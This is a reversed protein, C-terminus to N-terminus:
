HRAQQWHCAPIVCASRQHSLTEQRPMAHTACLPVDGPVGKINTSWSCHGTCLLSICHLVGRTSCCHSHGVLAQTIHLFDVEFCHQGEHPACRCAPVWSTALVHCACLELHRVAPAWCQACLSPASCVCPKRAHDPSAGSLCVTATRRAPSPNGGVVLM